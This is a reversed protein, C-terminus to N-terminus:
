ASSAQLIYGVKFVDAQYLTRMPIFNSGAILDATADSGGTKDSASILFAGYVNASGGLSTLDSITYTAEAGSDSLEIAGSIALTQPAWTPRAAEDYLELETAVTNITAAVDTSQWTRNETALGIYFNTYASPAGGVSVGLAANITYILGEDVFINASDDIVDEDIINGAADIRNGNRYHKIYFKGGLTAKALESIDLSDM